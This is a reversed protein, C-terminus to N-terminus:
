CLSQHVRFELLELYMIMFCLALTKGYEVEYEDEVLPDTNVVSTLEAELIQRPSYTCIGFM